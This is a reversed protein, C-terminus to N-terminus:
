APVWTHTPEDFRLWQRQFPNWRVYAGRRRDWHPEALAAGDALRSRVGVSVRTSVRRAAGPPAPALDTIGSPLPLPDAPRQGAATLPLPAPTETIPRPRGAPLTAAGSGVLLLPGHGTAPDTPLAVAAPPWGVYARDVVWTGARRDGWRRGTEDSLATVLGTVGPVAYPFGDVAWGVTRVLAQRMDCPHGGADVTRLGVAAKGPTFGRRGQLWVHSAAVHGAAAVMGVALGLPLDVALLAVATVVVFVVVTLSWDLLAAGVRRGVVDTPDVVTFRAM